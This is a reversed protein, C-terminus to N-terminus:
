LDELSMAFNEAELRCNGPLLTQSDAPQGDVEVTASTRFTLGEGSRFFVLEDTWNRCCIHSHSQPGLICSDSMLVINDVAPETKHHSELTLVATASLVHPRRFRIRVTDGVEILAGSNLVTPGTLPSGDVSVSHIPTLVYSEGDRRLSAHRRSLDALIPIDVNPPSSPQGITVEDDLCILYGGVGDIWAVHRRGPPRETIKTDMQASRNGNRTTQLNLRDGRRGGVFLATPASHRRVGTTDLGVAKWALRRAQRASRHEPALELLAEALSLATNWAQQGVAEHLQASLQGIRVGQERLQGQRQAIQGAISDEPDPLLAKARELTDAAAAAEGERALKKAQSILEVVLKWIRRQDGGLRRQELKKIQQSALATEGCALFQRIRQLSRDTYAQRLESIQEECGGMQAALHLDQWGASSEGIVLRRQARDALQLAVEESLRKAPLFERVSERQLLESAEDPRGADLARRAERIKIRWSPFM